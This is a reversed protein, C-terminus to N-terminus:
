ATAPAMGLRAPGGTGEENRAHPSRRRRIRRHRAVVHVEAVTDTRVPELSPLVLVMAPEEDLGLDPLVGPGRARNSCPGPRLRHVDRRPLHVDEVDAAAGGSGGQDTFVERPEIADRLENPGDPGRSTIAIRSTPGCSRERHDARYSLTSASSRPDVTNVSVDSRMARLHRGGPHRPERTTAEQFSAMSPRRSISSARPAWPIRRPVESSSRVAHIASRRFWALTARTSSSTHWILLPRGAFVPTPTADHDLRTGPRPPGEARDGSPRTTEGPRSRM